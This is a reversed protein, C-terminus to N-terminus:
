GSCSGDAEVLRKLNEFYREIMPRAQELEDARRRSYEADEEGLHVDVMHFVIKTKGGLDTLLLGDFSMWPRTVGYSGGKEPFVELAILRHPIVHAIGYLHHHPQPVQSSLDRPLVREFYGVQGHQGAVTELGHATMWGGINLAHPWVVDIPCDITSEVYLYLSGYPKQNLATYNGQTEM